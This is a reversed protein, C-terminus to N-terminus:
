AARGAAPFPRAPYRPSSLRPWSPLRRGGKRLATRNRSSLPNRRATLFAKRVPRRRETQQAERRQASEQPTGALPNTVSLVYPSPVSTVITTVTNAPIAFTGSNVAVAFLPLSQLDSGIVGGDQVVYQNSGDSVTFGIPIVFGASSGTFVIYVSANSGQGQPVGYVAGLM